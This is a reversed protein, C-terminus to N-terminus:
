DNLGCELRVLANLEAHAGFMLAYSWAECAGDRDGRSKLTMGRSLGRRHMSDAVSQRLYSPSAALLEEKASQNMAQERADLVLHEDAELARRFRAAAGALDGNTLVDLGLRYNDRAEALDTVASGVEIREAASLGSELYRARLRTQAEVLAGSHYEELAVAVWPDQFRDRYRKRVQDYEAPAPPLNELLAPRTSCTWAEEVGEKQLARLLALHVPNSPRWGNKPLKGWLSLKKGRPPTLTVISIRWCAVDMARTCARRALEWDKNAALELCAEREPQEVAAMAELLTRRAETAGRCRPDYHSLERIAEDPRNRRSLKQARFLPVACNSERTAKELLSRAEALSPEAQVAQLCSQETVVWSADDTADRVGARCRDLASRPDSPPPQKPPGPVLRPPPEHGWAEWARLGMSGLGGLTLGLVAWAAVVLRQSRRDVWRVTARPGV